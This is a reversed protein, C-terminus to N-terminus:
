RIDKLSRLLKSHGTKFENRSTEIHRLLLTEKHERLIVRFFESVSAYGGVKVAYDIEKRTTM